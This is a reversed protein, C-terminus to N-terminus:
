DGLIKLFEEKIQRLIRKPDDVNSFVTDTVAIMSGDDEKEGNIVFTYNHEEDEEAEEGKVTFSIETDKSMFDKIEKRMKKYDPM